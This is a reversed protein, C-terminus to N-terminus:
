LVFAGGLDVSKRHMGPQLDGGVVALMDLAKM